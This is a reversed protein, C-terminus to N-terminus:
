KGSLHGTRKGTRRMTGLSCHNEHHRRGSLHHTPSAGNGKSVSIQGSGSGSWSEVAIVQYNFTGLQLGGNAWVQFNNEVTVTGSTRPTHRISIYQNSTLTGLISPQNVQQYEWIDYTGGDSTITGLHNGNDSLWRIDKTDSSQWSLGVVFDEQTNSNISFSGADLNPSHQVNAGSAIFDQNYNVAESRRALTINEDRIDFTVPDATPLAYAGRALLASVAVFISFLGM